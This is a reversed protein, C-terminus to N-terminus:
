YESIVKKKMAAKAKHGKEDEGNRILVYFFVRQAKTQFVKSRQSGSGNGRSKTKNSIDCRGSDNTRETWSSPSSTSYM